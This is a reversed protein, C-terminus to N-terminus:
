RRSKKPRRTAVLRTMEGDVDEISVVDAPAVAEPLELAERWAATDQLTWIAAAIEAPQQNITDLLVQCALLAATPPM